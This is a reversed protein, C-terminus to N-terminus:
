ALKEFNYKIKIKKTYIYIYIYIYIHYHLNKIRGKDVSYKVKLLFNSECGIWEYISILNNNSM